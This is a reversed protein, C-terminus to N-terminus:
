LGEDAYGEGYVLSAGVPHRGEKEVLAVREPLIFIGGELEAVGFVPYGPLVATRHAADARDDIPAGHLLPAVFVGAESPDIKDFVEFHGLGQHIRGLRPSAGLAHFGQYSGHAERVQVPLAHQDLTELLEAGEGHDVIM